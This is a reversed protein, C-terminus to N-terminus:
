GGNFYQKFKSKKMVDMATGGDQMGAQEMVPAFKKETSQQPSGADGASMAAQRDDNGKPANFFAGLTGTTAPNDLRDGAWGIEESALRGGRAALAPGRSKLLAAGILAAPTAAAVGPHGSAAAGGSVASGAALALAAPLGFQQAQGSRSVANESLREADSALGYNQNANILANKSAPGNVDGIQSEIGQRLGSVAKRYQKAELPAAEKFNAADWAQSKVKNANAFSNPEAYEGQPTLEGIQNILTNAKSSNELELPNQQGLRQRMFSQLVAPDIEGNLDANGIENGIAKGAASKLERSRLLVSEAPSRTPHLGSPILKADLLKNGFDAQELPDIGIAALRDGIQGKGGGAVNAAKAGSFHRLAESATGSIPGLSEGAMQAAAGGLGGAVGSWFQKDPNNAPAKLAGTTAGVGAAAALRQALTMGEGFPPAMFSGVIAGTPHEEEEKRAHEQEAQLQSNYNESLAGQGNLTRGLAKVGAVARPYLGGVIPINNLAAGAWDNAGSYANSVADAAKDLFPQEGPKSAIAPQDKVAYKDALSEKVAYKDALAGM